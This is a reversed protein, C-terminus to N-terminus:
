LIDNKRWKKKGKDTWEWYSLENMMKNTAWSFQYGPFINNNGLHWIEDPNSILIIKKPNNDAPITFSSLSIRLGEGQAKVIAEKGTWIRYFENVKAEPSLNSLHEYEQNSFYRKAVSEEYDPRIKEIDVGVPTQYTFAYVAINHSHSVNFQLDPHNIYPKGSSTYNIQVSKANDNLYHGIINRLTARATIFRKRYLAFKFKEARKIEDPNLLDAYQEQFLEENLLTFWLHLQAAHPLNMAIGKQRM